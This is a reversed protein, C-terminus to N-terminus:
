DEGQSCCHDPDQAAPDIVGTTSVVHTLSVGAKGKKAALYSLISELWERRNTTTPFTTVSDIQLEEEQQEYWDFVTTISQLTADAYTM